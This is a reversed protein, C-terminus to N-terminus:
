LNAELLPIITKKRSIRDGLDALGDV